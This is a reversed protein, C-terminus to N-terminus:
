VPYRVIVVGQTGPQGGGRTGLGGSGYDTPAWSVIQPQNTNNDGGRGIKSGNLPSGTHITSGEFPCDIQNNNNPNASGGHYTGNDISPSGYQIIGSVGTNQQPQISVNITSQDDSRGGGSGGPGLPNPNQRPTGVGGGKAVVGFGTTDGGRNGTTGLSGINIPYSTESLAIEPFYVIGGSGGGGGYSDGGSTAGGGGGGIVAIEANGARTVQFTGPTTFIHYKFGNAISETGGTGEAVSPLGWENNAANWFVIQGTGKLDTCFVISGESGTIVKAELEAKTYAGINVIQFIQHAIM